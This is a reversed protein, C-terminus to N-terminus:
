MYNRNTATMGAPQINDNKDPYFVIHKYYEYYSTIKVSGARDIEDLEQPVDEFRDEM